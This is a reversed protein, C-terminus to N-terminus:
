KKALRGYPRQVIPLKGLMRCGNCLPLVTKYLKRMNQDTESGEAACYACVDSGFGSGYFPVEVPVACSLNGRTMARQSLTMDPPLLAAGCTYDLDSLSIALVVQERESLRQKSYIVRPKRCEICTVTSRANQVSCMSSAAFPLEVARVAEDRSATEAEGADTTQSAQESSVNVAPETRGTNVNKPKKVVKLSLRHDETTPCSKVDEYPKFHNGTDDLVPDPLWFLDEKPVEAPLCCDLNECKRIQFTYHRARCHTDLWAQYSEVSKTHVKQLKDLNLTPFLERLHRKLIDIENESVPDMVQFPVEKLKLRAFRNRIVAQVPEVAETWQAKLSPKTEAASRIAAMSNCNKLVKECDDAVSSRELSVNQLGLNLISMVREAPNTWSQGPACRALVLMDLNLERFVCIAACKVSELTNRQDTGGDTYKLLIKPMEEKNKLLKTIAAAHRFPTSIQFVSDNVLTVVQGSVFSKQVTDPVSCDLIVSPTISAKAMDHDLAVLTTSSPVISTKGRVGTSISSGPEGFPVKAKDDCFLITSPLGKQKLEVAKTKLYKLQANCYHDDPHGLRLQRRQIKYQVQIRSTFNLAAHCYPNRPAFQLRVLSKSPIPTGEPCAKDAQEMLERLSIFQSLHAMNHRRDDAATIDEVINSLVEFFKDYTGSPRGPNLNRLDALLGHNGLYILRLRKATDPHEAASADLTLEKYILDAVSPKVTALNSLSQKFMQRQARTHFEKLQPRVEQLFRAGQTLIEPESRNETVQTLCLTTICSGGPNYRILDVPVSLQISEIFRFRQEYSEFQNLLHESECFVVPSLCGAKKVAEDLKVFKPKIDGLCKQRHELTADKSITRVPHDLAQNTKQVENQVLLHDKYSILCVALQKIDAKAQEWAPSSGIIPKMLLSYLAQGHSNLEQSSMSASKLKKRKFDNYGDFNTFAEPVPYVNKKRLAADNIVTHQNTIYWLANCLVQFSFFSGNSLKM